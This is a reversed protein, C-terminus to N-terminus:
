DIMWKVTGQAAHADEAVAASVVAAGTMSLFAALVLVAIRGKLTAEKM